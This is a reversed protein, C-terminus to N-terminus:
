MPSTLIAYLMNILFGQPFIDSPLRPLLHFSLMLICRLSYPQLPETTNYVLLSYCLIQFSSKCHLFCDIPITSKRPALTRLNRAKFIWDTISLGLTAKVITRIRQLKRITADQRFTFFVGFNRLSRSYRDDSDVIRLFTRLKYLDFM